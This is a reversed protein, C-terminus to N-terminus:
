FRNLPVFINKLYNGDVYSLFHHFSEMCTKKKNDAHLIDQSWDYGKQFSPLFINKLPDSIVTKM